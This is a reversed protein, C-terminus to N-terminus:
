LLSGLTRQEITTIAMSVYADPSVRDTRGYKRLDSAAGRVNGCFQLATEIADARTLCVAFSESLCGPIHWEAVWVKRQLARTQVESADVSREDNIRQLADDFSMLPYYERVPEGDRMLTVDERYDRGAGTKSRTVARNYEVIANFGNDTDIITGVNGVIVQYKM